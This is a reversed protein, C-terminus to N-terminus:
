HNSCSVFIIGVIMIPKLSKEVKSLIVVKIPVQRASSRLHCFSLNVKTYMSFFEILMHCVFRFTM